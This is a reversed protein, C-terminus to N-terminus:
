GEQGLTIFDPGADDLAELVKSFVTTNHPRYTAVSGDDYLAGDHTVTITPYSDTIGTNVASNKHIAPMEVHKHFDAKELARSFMQTSMFMVIIVNVVGIVGGVVSRAVHSGAMMEQRKEEQSQSSNTPSCSRGYCVGAAGIQRWAAIGFFIAAVLHGVLFGMPGLQTLDPLNITVPDM